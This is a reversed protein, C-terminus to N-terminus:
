TERVAHTHAVDIRDFEKFLIYRLPVQVLIFTCTFHRECALNSYLHGDRKREWDHPPFLSFFIFRGSFGPKKQSDLKVTVYYIKCSTPLNQYLANGKKEAPGRFLCLGAVRVVGWICPGNAVFEPRRTICSQDHAGCTYPLPSFCDEEEEIRFGNSAHDRQARPSRIYASPRVLLALSM